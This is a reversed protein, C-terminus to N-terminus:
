VSINVSSGMGSVVAKANAIQMSFRNIDQGLVHSLSDHNVTNEIGNAKYVPTMIERYRAFADNVANGDNM